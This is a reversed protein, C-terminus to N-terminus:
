WSFWTLRLVKLRPLLSLFACEEFIAVARTMFWISSRRNHCISSNLIAQYGQYDSTGFLLCHECRKHEADQNRRREMDLHSCQQRNLPRFGFVQPKTLITESGLGTRLSSAKRLRVTEQRRHRGSILSLLLKKHELLFLQMISCDARCSQWPYPFQMCTLGPTEPGAGCVM